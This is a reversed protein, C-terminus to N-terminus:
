ALGPRVDGRWAVTAGTVLGEACAQQFEVARRAATDDRATVEPRTRVGLKSGFLVAVHSHSVAASLWAPDLVIQSRAWVDGFADRLALGDPLRLVEWGAAPNIALVPAASVWGFGAAVIAEIRAEQIVGWVSNHSLVTQVPQFLVVPIPEAAGSRDAALRGLRDVTVPSMGGMGPDTLYTARCPMEIALPDGVAALECLKRILRPRDPLPKARRGFGATIRRVM